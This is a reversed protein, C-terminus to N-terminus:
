QIIIERLFIVNKALSLKQTMHASVREQRLKKGSHRLHKTTKLLWHDAKRLKFFHRTCYLVADQM